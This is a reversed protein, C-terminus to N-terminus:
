ELRGNAAGPNQLLYQKYLLFFTPADLLEVDPAKKKLEAMVNYYWTPSKLINRFWHFPVDRKKIRTIILDAAESPDDNQIDYDSRLVPMGYKLMTLPVKQAVTGDTSFGAYAKLNDDNMAPADGDIIFGSISLDWRKYFPINHQKWAEVGDPLGSIERPHQLMGPNLYGAGNDAAVFYDNSSASERTYDMAMPVRRELVPSIAWMMPLKGRNPDDWLAPIMKYLWSSADYDGVYFVIFNKGTINLKGDQTLYGKDKLHGITIDKQPYESKLPFHSWFSANALAGLGIADADKFANYASILKTFGWETEVDGHKGGTHNTYKFAWPPFGGIHLFKQGKNQTYAQLLMMKLTALDTGLPQNPEDNPTEDGWPSLDFFFAKKSIFFDHNTLTHHDKIDRLPNRKWNQDIYYGAFATNCKGTKLYKEIFWRYPDNKLSGTSPLNVDPIMGTGTFKSTGDENLLWVKVPHGKKVLRSFLSTPSPNYSVAVLNEIGAISSAINSTSAVLPDYVVLGNIYPEYYDIAAEVGPLSKVQRESLWKGPQRYKKWWYEDIAVNNSVVYNIYLNPTKRNVIGQLTAVAHIEDWLMNLSDRNGYDYDLFHIIDLYGIPKDNITKSGPMKNTCSLLSIFFIFLLGNIRTMFTLKSILHIYM